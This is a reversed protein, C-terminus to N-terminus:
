RESVRDKWAKERKEEEEDEEEPPSTPGVWVDEPAEDCTNPDKMEENQTHLMVNDLWLEIRPKVPLV